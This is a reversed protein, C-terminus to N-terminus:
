LSQHVNPSTAAYATTYSQIVTYLKRPCSVTGTNSSILCHGLIFLIRVLNLYGLIDQPYGLGLIIRLQM